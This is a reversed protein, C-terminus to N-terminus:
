GERGWGHKRLMLYRGLTYLIQLDAKLSGLVHENSEKGSPRACRPAKSSGRRLQVNWPRYPAQHDLRLLTM